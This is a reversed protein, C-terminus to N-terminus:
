PALASFGGLFGIKGHLLRIYTAKAAVYILELVLIAGSFLSPSPETFLILGHLGLHCSLNWHLPCHGGYRRCDVLGLRRLVVHVRCIYRGDHVHFICVRYVSPVLAQLM